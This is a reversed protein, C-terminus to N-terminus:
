LMEEIQNTSHIPFKSECDIDTKGGEEYSDSSLNACEYYIENEEDSHQEIEENEEDPHSRIDLFFFDQKPNGQRM